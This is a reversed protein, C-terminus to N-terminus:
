RKRLSLGLLLGVFLGGGFCMALSQAPRKRVYEEADEYGQRLSDVVQQSQQQIRDAAQQVYQRVEEASQGVLSAGQATIDNLYNEVVARADGTKRQILGVLEDVTGHFAQLEDSSLQSWRQRLREKIENWNGLLTEQDIM